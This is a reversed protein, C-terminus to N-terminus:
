ELCKDLCGGLIMALVFGHGMKRDPNNIVDYLSVGLAIHDYSDYDKLTVEGRAVYISKLLRFSHTQVVYEAYLRAYIVKRADVYGLKESDWYSYEPKRGKGMPYRHAYKDAWGKARWIFWDVSPWGDNDVHEKYVKSYQWTNELNKAKTNKLYTQIPGLIFPSLQKFAGAHQVTSISMCDYPNKTWVPIVHVTM